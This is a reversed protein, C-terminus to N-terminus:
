IEFEFDLIRIGSTWHWGDNRTHKLVFKFLDYWKYPGLKASQTIIVYCMFPLCITNLLLTFDLFYSYIDTATQDHFVDLSYNVVIYVVM